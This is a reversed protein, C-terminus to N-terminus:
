ISVSVLSVDRLTKFFFVQSYVITQQFAKKLAVLQTILGVCKQLLKYEIAHEHRMCVQLYRNRNTKDTTRFLAKWYLRFNPFGNHIRLKEKFYKYINSESYSSCM